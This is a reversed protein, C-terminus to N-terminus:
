FRLYPLSGESAIGVMMSLIKRYIVRASPDRLIAARITDTTVRDLNSLDDAIRERSSRNDVIEVLRGQARLPHERMAGRRLFGNLVRLAREGIKM